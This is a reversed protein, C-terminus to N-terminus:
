GFVSWVVWLIIQSKFQQLTPSCFFAMPKRTFLHKFVVGSHLTDTHILQRPVVNLGTIRAASIACWVGVTDNHSPIEHILM